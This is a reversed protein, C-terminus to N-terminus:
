ASRYHDRRYRLHGLGIRHGRVATVKGPMGALSLDDDITFAGCDFRVHCNPCLCLLNELEDPGDHPRGIPRIHAGEAYPGAPTEIREKCVQCTFNHLQKVRRTLRTDRVVRAVTQTVRRPFITGDALTEVERAAEMPVMRFRCIKFPDFRSKEIWADEVRWLGKYEYTSTRGVRSSVRVPIAELMSVRLALNWASFTQDATLRGTVSNRPGQGTYVILEPTELDDPYGGSLVISEAAGSGDSAKCIGPQTARHVGARSLALRSPFRQGIRVEPLAGLAM